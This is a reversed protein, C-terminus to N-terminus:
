AEDGGNRVASLQKTGQRLAWEEEGGFGWSGGAGWGSLHPTLHLARLCVIPLRPRVEPAKPKLVYCEFQGCMVVEKVGDGDLDTQQIAYVPHEYHVCNTLQYGAWLRDVEFLCCTDPDVEPQQAMFFDEPDVPSYYLLKNDWTGVLIHKFGRGSIDCAHACTVGHQLISNESPPLSRWQWTGRNKDGKRPTAGDTPATSTVDTDVPSGRHEHAAELRCFEEMSNTSATTPMRAGTHPNLVAAASRELDPRLEKGHESGVGHQLRGRTKPNLLRGATALGGGCDPAPVDGPDTQPLRLGDMTQEPLHHPGSSACSPRHKGQRQSEVTLPSWKDPLMKVNNLGHQIVDLFIFVRGMAEAVLLNVHDTCATSEADRSVFSKTQSEGAESEEGESDCGTFQAARHQLETVLPACVAGDPNFTFLQVSAIPGNLWMSHVEPKPSQDCDESAGILPSWLQASALSASDRPVARVFSISLFGDQTLTLVPAHPCALQCYHHLTLSHMRAHTRAHTFSHKVSHTPPHPTLVHTHIIAVSHIPTRTSHPSLSLPSLPGNPAHTLSHALYTHLYSIRHCKSSRAPPHSACGWIDHHVSM